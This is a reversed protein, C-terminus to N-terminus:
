DCTRGTVISDLDIGEEGAIWRSMTEIIESGPPCEYTAFDYEGVVETLRGWAGQHLSLLDIGGGILNRRATILRSEGQTKVHILDNDMPITTFPVGATGTGAPESLGPQAIAAAIDAMDIMMTALHQNTLVVVERPEQTALDTFSMHMIDKPVNGNGLEAITKGVVHAGDGIDALPIAVLPTCTYAALLYKEGDVEIITQTRIPARTENQGHAAHYIEVSSLSQTGDFPYAVKYLTSAFDANSLGAVYLFGDAHDIDTISLSRAPIRGWFSVDDSIPNSLAISPATAVTADDVVMVAGDATVRAVTAWANDGAGYNIAVFVSGDGPHVAVDAVSMASESVGLATAILSNAGYVNFHRENDSADSLGSVDVATITAATSDAVFLVKDPGFSLTSIAAFPGSPAPSTSADGETTDDAADDSSSDTCATAGLITMTLTAATM